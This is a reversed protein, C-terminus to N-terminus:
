NQSEAVGRDTSEPSPQKVLQSIARFKETGAVQCWEFLAGETTTLTVGSIQMRQLAADHDVSFRSAVADVALFVEYGAALLDLASQLVCVHTEAGALLIQRPALQELHQMLAECGAVSFSLKDPISPLRPALTAITPGLGQPYQETALRPIDLIEAAAVLRQLNWELTAQQPIAALLRTQADVVMLVSEDSSLLLPSHPFRSEINM